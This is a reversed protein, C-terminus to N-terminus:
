KLFGQPVARKGGWLSFFHTKRRVGSRWSRAHRMSARVFRIKTPRISFYRVVCPQDCRRADAREVRVFITEVEDFGRTLAVYSYCSAQLLHKAHLAEDTEDDSGGTKYDVILARRKEGEAGRWSAFLDISGELYRIARCEEDCSSEEDLSVFFPLEAHM